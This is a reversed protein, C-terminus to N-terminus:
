LKFLKWQSFRIPIVTIVVLTNQESGNVYMLIETEIVVGNM